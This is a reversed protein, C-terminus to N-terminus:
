NGEFCARVQEEHWLNDTSLSELHARAPEDAGEVYRALYLYATILRISEVADAWQELLEPRFAIEGELPRTRQPNGHVFESCERYTKIALAGYQKRIEDLFPHFAKVFPASFVGKESDILAAWTIDKAANEWQRLGLESGSFHIASILLEMALRLSGFGHRYQGTLVASLAFQFEHSASKVCVLEPREGVIELLKDIDSLFNHCSTFKDRHVNDGLSTLAVDKQKDLLSIYIDRVNEPM